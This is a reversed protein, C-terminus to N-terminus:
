WLFSRSIRHMWNSLMLSEMRARMCVAFRGALSRTASGAGLRVIESLSVSDLNLDLAECAAVGLAAFGSASFGLGKGVELSNESVVKFNGNYRATKKLENLVREVRERDRGRKEQGNIIVVNERLSSSAEVSTTTNLAQICVSISDHFPIRQRPKKLGHYKILGQIPHARATATMHIM